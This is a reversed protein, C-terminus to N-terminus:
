PEDTSSAPAFGDRVFQPDAPTAVFRLVQLTVRVVIRIRCDKVIAVARWDRECAAMTSVSFRRVPIKSEVAYSLFTDSDARNQGSVSTRSRHNRFSKEM